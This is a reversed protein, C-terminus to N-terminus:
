LSYRRHMSRSMRATPPSFAKGSVAYARGSFSTFGPAGILVDNYGDGDIDGLGAVSMGSFSRTSEGEIAVAHYSSTDNKSLLIETPLKRDGYILYSRGKGKTFFNSAGILFDSFGDRNMDGVATLSFGLPESTVMPDSVASTIVVGLDGLANLTIHKPLNSGGYILYVRHSASDRAGILIDAYGDNNVDGPSTVTLGHHSFNSPDEFVVGKWNSSSLDLSGRMSPGGYVLYVTGTKKGSGCAGILFDDYGDKNVDGAGAVTSGIDEATMVLGSSAPLPLSMTEPLSAGGYILYVKGKESYSSAGLLIDAYGDNNVDGVKTVAYGLDHSLSESGITVGYRGLSSLSVSSPLSRGGFIVHCNGKSGPSPSGIMFDAYGDRNVDGLGSVDWGTYSRNYGYFVVGQSGLTEPTLSDPMSPGGYVLFAAGAYKSYSRAGILYDDYGDKNVDGVGSVAFGAETKSDNGSFLASRIQGLNLTKEIMGSVSYVCCIVCVTVFCFNGQRM